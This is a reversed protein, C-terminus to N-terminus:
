HLIFFSILRKVLKYNEPFISLVFNKDEKSFVKLFKAILLYSGAGIIVYPILLMLSLGFEYECLLVLLLMILASSWLKVEGTLDFSAIDENRAFYYQVLFTAAYVSSYGIAAGILGFTPILLVSLTANVGLSTVTSYVFVKTRRVSSIAISLLNNQPVFIAASFLIIMLPLVAGLYSTGILLTIFVPSLAAAGLAIPVFISSLLIASSKVHMGIEARKGGGVLESFKPLLLNNFPGVITAVASAGLLAYNYVGLHSLGSLFDVILRDINNSGYALLGSVLIPFSYQVLYGSQSINKGKPYRRIMGVVIFGEAFVGLFIGIAWGLVIMDVSRIFFALTITGFYYVAWMIINILASLRFYQMGLIAGNLVGTIVTGFLLVSLLRVLSTYSYSHFFLISIEPSLLFLTSLGLVSLLTGIGIIQYLTRRVSAFDKRGINYSTFHQAASGLGFSFVISFLGLIAAVATIAGVNYVNFLRAVIIYFITGSFLQVGSGTYQFIADLGLSSNSRIGLM